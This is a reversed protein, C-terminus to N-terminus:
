HTSENKGGKIYDLVGQICDLCLDKHKPNPVTRHPIQFSVSGEYNELVKNCRDCKYFCSM